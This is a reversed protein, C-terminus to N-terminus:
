IIILSSKNQKKEQNLLPLVIVVLGMLIVSVIFRHRQNFTKLFFFHWLNITHMSENELFYLAHLVIDREEKSLIM